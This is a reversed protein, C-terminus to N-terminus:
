DIWAGNYIGAARDLAISRRYEREVVGLACFLLFAWGYQGLCFLIIVSWALLRRGFRALIWCVAYLGLLLAVNQAVFLFSISM